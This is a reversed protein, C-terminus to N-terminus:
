VLARRIIDVMRDLDGTNIEIHVPLNLLHKVLIESEKMRGSVKLHSRYIPIKHIPLPYNYLGVEFGKRRLNYEVKKKKSVDRIYIPFRLLPIDKFREDIIDIGDIDSLREYLEDTHKKRVENVGDLNDLELGLLRKRLNDLELLKITPIKSPYVPRLIKIIEEKINDIMTKKDDYVCDIWEAIVEGEIEAFLYGEVAKVIEERSMNRERIMSEGATFPLFARYYDRNMLIKQVALGLVEDEGSIDRHELFESVPKRILDSKILLAGGGGCTIHKDLNFSLIVADGSLGLLRGESKVGLGQANDEILFIGNERCFELVPSIDAPVGYIYSLLVAGTKKSFAKKVSSLNLGFNKQSIDAVVPICEANLVADLVVPCTFTPVIVEDGDGLGLAKLALYISARGSTILYIEKQPFLESLIDVSEPIFDQKNTSLITLVNSLSVSPVQRPIM